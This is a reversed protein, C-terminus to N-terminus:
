FPEIRLTLMTFGWFEFMKFIKGLVPHGYGMCPTKREEKKRREKEEKKRKGKEKKKKSKREEKENGNKQKQKKDKKRKGKEKKRFIPPGNIKETM